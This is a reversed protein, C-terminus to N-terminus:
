NKKGTLKRYWQEMKEAGSNVSTYFTILTFIGVVTLSLIIVFVKM